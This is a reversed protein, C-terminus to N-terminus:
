GQKGSADPLFAIIPKHFVEIDRPSRVTTDLLEAVFASIVGLLLGVGLGGFIILIRNPKSPSTPLVPPDLIIFQNAGRSGVEQALRAAELKLQMDDYVKKNIDFTSENDKSETQAVSTKKLEEVVQMRRGEMTRQQTQLNAIESETAALMRQLMEYIQSELKEIEPYKGQYARTVQDYQTVLVKLDAAYPLESRTLDFLPQKGDEKRLIEPSTQLVSPLQRLIVLKDEDTKVKVDIAGLSKDTEELKAYLSRTETPMDQVRQRLRTVMNRVSNEFDVKYEAVKKEYFEVALANQRNEVNLKTQIFLNEIVEAGRQARAPDTDTYMIKFSDSGLRTTTINNALQAAILQKETESKVNMTLGLSDSLQELVSRSYIIEGFNRLQEEFAMVMEYSPIPNLTKDPRVLITTTSEYKRTLVFAGIICVATVVATSYAPYKWRRHFVAILEHPTFQAPRMM